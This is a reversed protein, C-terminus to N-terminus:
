VILACSFLVCYNKSTKKNYRVIVIQTSDYKIACATTEYNVHQTKTGFPFRHQWLYIMSIFNIDVLGHKMFLYRLSSRILDFM